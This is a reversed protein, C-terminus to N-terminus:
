DASPDYTQSCGLKLRKYKRHRTEGQGIGCVNPNVCKLIEEAQTRCLKTIYVYLYPSKFAVHLKRVPICRDLNGIACLVSNQLRQLKLLQADAVYEWTPCAFTVVSRILAKYLTLKINTNLHGSKFLSYTRIYTCLAMTVTRETCHRWTM